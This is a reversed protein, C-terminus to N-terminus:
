AQHGVKKQPTMKKDKRSESPCLHSWLSGTPATEGCSARPKNCADIGSTKKKYCWQADKVSKKLPFILAIHAGWLHQSVVPTAVAPWLGTVHARGIIHGRVVSSPVPRGMPADRLVERLRGEM